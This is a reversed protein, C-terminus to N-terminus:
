PACKLTMGRGAAEMSVLFAAAATAAYQPSEGSATMARAYHGLLDLHAAGGARPKIAIIAATSGLHQACHVDIDGHVSPLLLMCASHNHASAIAVCGATVLTFRAALISHLGCCVRVGIIAADTRVGPVSCLVRLKWGQVAAISQWWGLLGDLLQKDSASPM